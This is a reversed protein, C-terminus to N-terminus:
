SQIFKELHTGFANAEELIDRECLNRMLNNDNERKDYLTRAGDIHLLNPINRM